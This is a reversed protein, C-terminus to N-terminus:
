CVARGAAKREEPTRIASPDIRSRVPTASRRNIRQRAPQNTRPRARRYTYDDGTFGVRRWEFDDRGDADRSSFAAGVAYARLTRM